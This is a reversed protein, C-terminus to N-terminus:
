RPKSNLPQARLLSDKPLPNPHTPSVGCVREAGEERWGRVGEHLRGLGPGRQPVTRARKSRSGAPKWPCGCRSLAPARPAPAALSSRWTGGQTPPTRRRGRGEAPSRPSGRGSGRASSPLPPVASWRGRLKFASARDGNPSCTGNPPVLHQTGAGRVLTSGPQKWFNELLGSTTKEREM